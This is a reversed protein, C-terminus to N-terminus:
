LRRVQNFTLNDVDLDGECKKPLYKRLMNFERRKPPTKPRPPPKKMYFINDLYFQRLFEAAM